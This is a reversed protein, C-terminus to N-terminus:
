HDDVIAWEAVRNANGIAPYKLPECTPQTEKSCRSRDLAIDATNNSHHMLYCHESLDNTCLGCIVTDPCKMNSPLALSVPGMGCVLVDVEVRSLTSKRSMNIAYKNLHETNVSFTEFVFYDCVTHPSSRCCNCTCLVTRSIRLHWVENCLRKVTRLSKM